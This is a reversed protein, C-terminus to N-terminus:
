RVSAALADPEFPVGATSLCDSIAELVRGRLVV